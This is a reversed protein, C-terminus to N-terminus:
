YQIERNNAKVMGRIGGDGGNYWVYAYVCNQSYTTMFMLLITAQDGYSQPSQFTQLFLLKLINKLTTITHALIAKVALYIRRPVKYLSEQSVENEKYIGSTLTELKKRAM